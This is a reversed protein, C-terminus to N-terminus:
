EEGSTMKDYIEQIKAYEEDTLAQSASKEALLEKIMEISKSGIEPTIPSTQAIQLDQPMHPPPTDRFSAVYPLILGQNRIPFTISQTIGGTCSLGIVESHQYGKMDHSIEKPLYDSTFLMKGLFLSGVHNINVGSKLQPWESGFVTCNGQAYLAVKNLILPGGATRCRALDYYITRASVIGVPQADASAPPYNYNIDAVYIDDMCVVTVPVQPNGSVLVPVDSFIVRHKPCNDDSISSLNIKRAKIVPDVAIYSGKSPPRKTCAISTKDLAYYQITYTGPDRFYIEGTTYNIIYQGSSFSVIGGPIHGWMTAHDITDAPLGPEQVWYDGVEKDQRTLVQGFSNIIIENTVPHHSLSFKQLPGTLTVNDAAPYGLSDPNYLVIFIEAGYWCTNTQLWGPMGGPVYGVGNTVTAQWDGKDPFGDAGPYRYIAGGVATDSKIDSLPASSGGSLSVKYVEKWIGVGTNGGPDNCTYYIRDVPRISPFVQDPLCFGATGPILPIEGPCFPKQEDPIRIENPHIFFLHDNRGGGNVSATSRFDVGQNLVQGNNVLYQWGDPITPHVGDENSQNAFITIPGGPSPCSYYIERQITAVSITDRMAPWKSGQPWSEPWSIYLRCFTGRTTPYQKAYRRHSLYANNGYYNNLKPDYGDATDVYPTAYSPPIAVLKYDPPLQYSLNSYGAAGNPPDWQGYGIVNKWYKGANMFFNDENGAKIHWDEDIFGQYYDKLPDVLMEQYNVKTVDSVATEKFPLRMKYAGHNKDQVLYVPKKNGVENVPMCDTDKPGYWGDIPLHFYDTDGGLESITGSIDPDYPNHINGGCAIFSLPAPLKRVNFPMFGEHFIARVVYGYQWDFIDHWQPKAMAKIPGKIRPFREINFRFRQRYNANTPLSNYTTPPNGIGVFMTCDIYGPFPNMFPDPPIVDYDRFSAALYINGAASLVPGRMDASKMYDYRQTNESPPTGPGGYKSTMLVLDGNSRIPGTYCRGPGEDLGTDLDPYSIFTDRPFFMAYDTVNYLSTQMMMASTTGGYGGVSVILSDNIGQGRLSITGRRITVGCFDEEVVQRHHTYYDYRYEWLTRYIGARAIWKARLVDSSNETLNYSGISLLLFISSYLLLVSLVVLSLILVSGRSQKKRKCM